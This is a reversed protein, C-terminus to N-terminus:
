GSTNAAYVPGAPPIVHMLRYPVSMYSHEYAQKKAKEAVKKLELLYNAKGKM